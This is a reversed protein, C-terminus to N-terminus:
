VSYIIWCLVILLELVLECTCCSENPTPYRPTQLTHQAPAWNILQKVLTEVRLLVLWMQQIWGLGTSSTLFYQNLAFYLVNWHQPLILDCLM